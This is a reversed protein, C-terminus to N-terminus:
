RSGAINQSVPTEENQFESNNATIAVIGVGYSLVCDTKEIQGKM